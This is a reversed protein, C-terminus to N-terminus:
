KLGVTSKNTYNQYAQPLALISEVALSVSGLGEVYWVSDGVLSQLALLVALLTLLCQIYSEFEAWSWFQTWDWDTFKKRLSVQHPHRSNRVSICLSLM